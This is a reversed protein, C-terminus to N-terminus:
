KSGGLSDSTRSEIASALARPEVSSTSWTFDPPAMSASTAVDHPGDVLRSHGDGDPDTRGARIGLARRGHQECAACRAYMEGPELAPAPCGNCSSSGPALVRAPTASWNAVSAFARPRLGSPARLSAPRAESRGIGTCRARDVAHPRRDALEDHASSPLVTVVAPPSTLSEVALTTPVPRVATALRILLHPEAAEVEAALEQVPQDARRDRVEEEDGPERQDHELEVGRADTQGAEDTGHTDDAGEDAERVERHVPPREPQQKERREAEGDVHLGAREADHVTM